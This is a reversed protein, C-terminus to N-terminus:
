LGQHQGAKLFYELLLTVQLTDQLSWTNLCQSILCISRFYHLWSVWWTDKCEVMHGQDFHVRRPLIPTLFSIIWFASVLVLKCVSWKNPSTIGAFLLTPIISYPFGLWPYLKSSLVETPLQPTVKSNARQSSVLICRLITKMLSPLPSYPSWSFLTNM